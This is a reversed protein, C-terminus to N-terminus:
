RKITNGCKNCKWIKLSTGYLKKSIPYAGLTMLTVFREFSKEEASRPAKGLYIHNTYNTCSRCFEIRNKSMFIRRCHLIFYYLM